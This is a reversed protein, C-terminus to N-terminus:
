VANRSLIEELIETSDQIFKPCVTHFLNKEKALELAGPLSLDCGLLEKCIISGNRSVFKEAFERVLQHTKEKKVKDEGSVPGNQLGIVMFAGTVAGCTQAMRGMGGGFGSSIKLALERDLGFLDAFTVLITQSCGFGEKFISLATEVRSM